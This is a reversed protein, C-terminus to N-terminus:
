ERDRAARVEDFQAHIRGASVAMVISKVTELEKQTIGEDRAGGLYVDM